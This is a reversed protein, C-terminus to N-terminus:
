DLTLYSGDPESGRNAIRQVLLRRCVFHVEGFGHGRRREAGIHRENNEHPSQHDPRGILVRGAFGGIRLQCPARRIALEDNRLATFVVDLEISRIEDDIGDILDDLGYARFSALRSFCWCWAAWQCTKM